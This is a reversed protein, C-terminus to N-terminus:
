NEIKKNVYSCRIKIYEDFSIVKGSNDVIVKANEAQSELLDQEVDLVMSILPSETNSDRGRQKRYELTEEPTSYLYVPVDVCNLLKNNGHTWEIILVNVNSFNTSSYWLDSDERGMRKLLISEESNKFKKIIENLEAFDIENETGLYSKLGNIGAELYTCFWTFERNHKKDLDNDRKQLLQLTQNVEDTYKGRSVLGKIGYERFIRLREEDNRRPIRRPYNDGSLIYTGIGICNLYYAFLAASVSKGVGSGGYVSVVVKRNSNSNLVTNIEKLITPFVLEAKEICGNNISIKDSPMDGLPIDINKSIKPALWNLDINIEKNM